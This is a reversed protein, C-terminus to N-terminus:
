ADFQIAELLPPGLAIVEGLVPRATVDSSLPTISVRRHHIAWADTGEEAQGEPRKREIWFYPRKGDDGQRVRETYSRGGLRTVDVGQVEEPLVDPLNINLLMPRPGLGQVWSRALGKLLRAAAEFSRPHLATVSVAVSSIGRYYGQFAAGVTGSLLVDDGLNAGSNIGTVVLDVTGVLTELALIVSDAPTGEVAYVRTGPVVPVAETARVPRHLTVSPGVGSQERDPAVVVVEALEKLAKVAAWLGPAYIGDDNSILVKM